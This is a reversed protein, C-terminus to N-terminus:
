GRFRAYGLVELFLLIRRRRVYPMKSALRPWALKNFIFMNLATGSLATLYTIGADGPIAPLLPVETGRLPVQVQLAWPQKPHAYVAM